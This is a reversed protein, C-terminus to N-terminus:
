EQTSRLERRMQEKNLASLDAHDYTHNGITHGEEVIRRLLDPNEKVKSGLVFFTAEIDHQRLEDLIPPTTQRDPGDDFTLAIRGGSTGIKSHTALGPTPDQAIADDWVREMDPQQAMTPLNPPSPLTRTEVPLLAPTDGEGSSPGSLAVVVFLLLVVFFLVLVFSIRRMRFRRRRARKVAGSAVPRRRTRVRYTRTVMCPFTIRERSLIRCTGLYPAGHGPPALYRTCPGGPSPPGTM